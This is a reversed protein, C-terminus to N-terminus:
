GQSGFPGQPGGPHQPQQPQRRQGDHRPPFQGPYPNSPSGWGELPMPYGRQAILWPEYRAQGFGLILAWVVPLFIGLVLFGTDKRFAINTRNMGIYLFVLTVISGYPILICLAWWGSQGGLRLWTWYQYVPVWAKWREIGVKAFLAQLAIGLIVYTIAFTVLLIVGTVFLITFVMAAVRGSDPHPDPVTALATALASGTLSQDLLQHLPM